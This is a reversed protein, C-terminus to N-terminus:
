MQRLAPVRTEKGRVAALSGVESQAAHTRRPPFQARHFGDLMSKWKQHWLSPPDSRMKDHDRFLVAVAKDGTEEEIEVCVSGLAMANLHFYGTEMDHKKGPLVMNRRNAKREAALEVLHAKGILQIADPQDALAYGLRPSILQDLLVTIPGPQFNRDSCRGQANNCMGLDSPGEGSLVLIM